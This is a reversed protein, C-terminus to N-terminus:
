PPRVMRRYAAIQPVVNVFEAAVGEIPISGNEVAATHPHDAVAIKLPVPAKAL